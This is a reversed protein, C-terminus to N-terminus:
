IVSKLFDPATPAMMTASRMSAAPTAIIVMMIGIRGGLIKAFIRVVLKLDIQATPAMGSASRPSVVPTAGETTGVTAQLINILVASLRLASTLVLAATMTTGSASRTSVASTAPTTTMSLREQLVKAFIRLVRILVVAPMLTAAIAAMGNASQPSVAPTVVIIKGVTAQLINIPVASLRLVSSQVLAATVMILSARKVSATWTAVLTAGSRSGVPIKACQQIVNNLVVRAIPAMGIASRPSVALTAGETTGVTTTLPLQFVANLRFASRQVIAAIMVM